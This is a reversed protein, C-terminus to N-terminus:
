ILVQGDGAWTPLGFGGGVKMGQTLEHLNMTEFRRLKVFHDVAKLFAARHLSQTEGVGWFEDPIIKKLVAQCFASM